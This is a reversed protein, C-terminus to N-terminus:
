AIATGAAVHGQINPMKLSKYMMDEMGAPDGARVFTYSGCITEDPISSSTTEQQGEDDVSIRSM